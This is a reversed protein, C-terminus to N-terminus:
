RFLSQLAVRSYGKVTKNLQKKKFRNLEIVNNM